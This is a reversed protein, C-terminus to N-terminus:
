GDRGFLRVLWDQMLGTVRAETDGWFLWHGVEPLEQYDVPGGLKRAVARSTSALTIRDECGVIVLAPAKLKALDVTNARTKSLSPLMIEALVRGSDWVLAKLEERAVAEPVGNYIGWLAPEAEIRTADEWWGWRTVVGRMTKIPSLGLSPTAATGATSLLVLGAHEVRAAVCQALMGGMSHGVIVPPVRMGRIIDALFTVYDEIGLRGLGEAPPLGPDRDHFPLAPALTEWGDAELAARVRAFVGPVSWMGHVFLLPPRM